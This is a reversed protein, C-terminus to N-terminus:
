GKGQCAPDVAFERFIYMPESEASVPVDHLVRKVMQWVDQVKDSPSGFAYGIMTDGMWGVVLAFDRSPAYLRVLREWFKDPSYWPNHQQGLHAKLYLATLPERLQLAQEANYYEIRCHQEAM